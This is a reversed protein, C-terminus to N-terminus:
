CCCMTHILKTSERVELLVLAIDRPVRAKADVEAAHDYYRKALHLDQTVGDGVQLGCSLIHTCPLFYYRFRGM